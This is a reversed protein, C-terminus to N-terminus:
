WYDKPDSLSFMGNNSNYTVHYGQEKVRALSPINTIGNPHFVKGYGAVQSTELWIQALSELM